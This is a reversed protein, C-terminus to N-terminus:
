EEEWEWPENNLEANLCQGILKELERLVQIKAFAKEASSRNSSSSHEASAEAIFMRVFRLVSYLVECSRTNSPLRYVKEVKSKKSKKFLKLM